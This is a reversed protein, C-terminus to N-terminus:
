VLFAYFRVPRSYFLGLIRKCINFRQFIKVKQQFPSIIPFTWYKYVNLTQKIIFNINHFTWCGYVNIPSEVHNLLLYNQLRKHFTWYVNVNLPHKRAKGKVVIFPLNHFTWCSYVNTPFFLHICRFLRKTCTHSFDLIQLCKINNEFWKVTQNFQLVMNIYWYGYVNIRREM